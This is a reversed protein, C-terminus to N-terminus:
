QDVQVSFTNTGASAPLLVGIFQWHIAGVSSVAPTTLTVGTLNPPLSGTTAGVFTSYAPTSDSVTINTLNGSSTNQYVLTYTLIEGPLATAKDVTKVLSLGATTPSGVTTLDSHMAIALLVPAANTYNFTATVTALNQANLPAGAPVFEKVLFCLQQGAVM